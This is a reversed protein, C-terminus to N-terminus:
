DKRPPSARDRQWDRRAASRATAASRASRAPSRAASRATAASRASRAASRALRATAASRASRATSRASRATAASRASRATSRASRAAERMSRRQRARFHAQDVAYTAAAERQPQLLALTAQDERLPGDALEEEDFLELEAEQFHRRAEVHALADLSEPM